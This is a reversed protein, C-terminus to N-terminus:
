QSLEAVLHMGVPCCNEMYEPVKVHYYEQVQEFFSVIRLLGECCYELNHSQQAFAFSLDLLSNDFLELILTNLSNLLQLQQSRNLPQLSSIPKKITEKPSELISQSSHLILLM